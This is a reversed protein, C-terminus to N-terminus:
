PLQGGLCLSLLGQLLPAAREAPIHSADVLAAWAEFACPNTRLQAFVQARSVFLHMILACM